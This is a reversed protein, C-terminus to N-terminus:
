RLWRADKPLSITDLSSAQYGSVIIGRDASYVVFLLPEWDAGRQNKGLIRETETLIAALNGGRRQFVTLRGAEDQIARRLDARYEYESTRDAWQREAIRQTLHKSLTPFPARAMRRTIQGIEEATADRRTRILERILLDATDQSLSDRRRRHGRIEIAHM